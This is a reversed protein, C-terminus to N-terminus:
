RSIIRTKRLWIMLLLIGGTLILATWLAIGWQSQDYLYPHVGVQYDMYDNLLMWLLTVGILTRTIKIHRIYIIGEVAMGLHSTALMFNIINFEFGAPILQFNIVAAWIGYKIVGACAFLELLPKRRGVLIFLLMVTFLTTSFPSDPVFLLFRAPTTLLQDKYWYYGYVSGLLNIGILAIIFKRDFPQSLFAFLKKVM